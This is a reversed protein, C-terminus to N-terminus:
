RWGHFTSSGDVSLGAEDEWGVGGSVGLGRRGRKPLELEAGRTDGVAGRLTSREIKAVKEREEEEALTFGSRYITIHVRRAGEYRACLCRLM